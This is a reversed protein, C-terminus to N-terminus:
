REKQLGGTSGYAISAGMDMFVATESVVGHHVPEFRGDCWITGGRTRVADCFGFDEGIWGPPELGRDLQQSQFWPGTAWHQAFWRMRVAMFATGIRDVPVVRGMFEQAEMQWEKGEATLMAPNYIPTKEPRERLRVPAAILAADRREGDELMQVIDLACTHFTDADCFMLWEAPMKHLTAHLLVNRAWDLSCTDAWTIQMRQGLVAKLEAAQITHGVHVQRRYAPLALLLTHM